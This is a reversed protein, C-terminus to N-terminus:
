HYHTNNNVKPLKISRVTDNLEKHGMEIKELSHHLGLAKDMQELYCQTSHHRLKESESKQYERHSVFDERLAKYFVELDEQTQKHKAALMQGKDWHEAERGDLGQLDTAIESCQKELASNKLRIDHVEEITGNLDKRTHQQQRVNQRLREREEEFERRLQAIEEKEDCETAVQHAIKKAVEFVYDRTALTTDCRSELARLSTTTERLGSSNIMITRELQECMNHSEINTSELAQKTASTAELRDLSKTLREEVADVLHTIKSADNRAETKTAFTTDNFNQAKKLQTNLVDIEQKIEFTSTQLARIGAEHKEELDRVVNEAASHKHLERLGEQLEVETASFKNVIEAASNSLHDKTAFNAKCHMQYDEVQKKLMADQEEAKTIRERLAEM